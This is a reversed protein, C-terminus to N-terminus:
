KRWEEHSFVGEHERRDLDTGLESQAFEVITRRLARQEDDLPDPLLSITTDTVSRSM